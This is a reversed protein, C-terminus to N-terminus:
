RKLLFLWRGVGISGSVMAIQHAVAIEVLSLRAVAAQAM